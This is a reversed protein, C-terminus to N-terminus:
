HCGIEVKFTEEWKKAIHMGSHSNSSKLILINETSLIISKKIGKERIWM